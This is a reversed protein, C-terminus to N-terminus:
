YQIYGVLSYEIHIYYGFSFHKDLSMSELGHEDAIVIRVHHTLRVGADHGDEPGKSLYM